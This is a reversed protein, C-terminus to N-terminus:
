WQNTRLGENYGNSGGGTLAPDDVASGSLAGPAMAFAHLGARSSAIRGYTPSIEAYASLGNQNGFDPAYYGGNIDARNSASGTVQAGHSSQALAPSAISVVAVAAILALQSKNIMTKEQNAFL